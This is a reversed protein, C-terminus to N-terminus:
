ADPARAGAAVVESSVGQAVRVITSDAGPEVRRDPLKHTNRELEARVREM